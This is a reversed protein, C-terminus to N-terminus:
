ELMLKRFATIDEMTFGCSLVYAVIRDNLTAGEYKDFVAILKDFRTAHSFDLSSSSFGTVEWDRYLEEEDVGLLGNLICALSGTRDAGAICHFIIPYNKKDLFVRFCKKFAERGSEDGMGGYNSSSIHFWAVKDGLPSGTMGYCERFCRLDLDSKIGLWDTGWARTQDNLRAKGPKASDPILFRRDGYRKSIKGGSKLIDSFKKAYHKADTPKGSSDITAALKAELTGDAYAAKLDDITLAKWDANNNLGASRYILGQRVRRGDLGRRGGLDRVNPVGDWAILRPAVDETKFTGHACRGDVTKVQWAYERAIEFNTLEIVNSAVQGKFFVEHGPLKEVVLEGAAAGKWSFVVGMPRNAAKRLNERGAESAFIKRREDRRKDLYDRHLAAILPVVAGDVPSVVAFEGDTPPAPVKTAAAVAPAKAAKSSDAVAETGPYPLTFNFWADDHWCYYDHVLEGNGADVTYCRVEKEAPVFRFVRVFGGGTDQMLSYVMNGNVGREDVRTIKIMGQDGSVVMFVNKYKSSLKKWIDAGSNGDNGHCKHWQMRGLISMDPRYQPRDKKKLANMENSILRGNKGEIAGLDQHTAIIAHRDAYKELMKGGWALVPDPANCELHLVVFKEGGEEFLCCSNANDGSVALQAQNVFGKFTGAYWRNSNFRSSPFYKRFLSTDGTREMDHNGPSVAYPLVGDLRGMANSAFAWQYDNNMDVLDGTHSVFKINEKKANKVLWDVIADLKKNTTPGVGPKRGRKTHRGQGDYAQTDPVVVYTFAGEPLPPLKDAWLAPGLAMAAVTAFLSISRLRFM